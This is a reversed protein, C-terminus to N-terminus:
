GRYFQIDFAPAGAFRMMTIQEQEYLELSQGVDLIMWHATDTSGPCFSFPFPARSQLRAINAGSPITTGIEDLLEALSRVVPAAAANVEAYGNSDTVPIASM